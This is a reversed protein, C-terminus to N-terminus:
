SEKNSLLRRLANALVGMDCLPKHFMSAESIGIARLDDTLGYSLSGTHILFEMEPCVQHLAIIADRGDMGPLRMDMICIRPVCGNEVIKLADEASCATVITFGDDELYAALTSRVTPDDDVLLIIGM